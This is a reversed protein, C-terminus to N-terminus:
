VARLLLGPPGTADAVGEGFRRRFPVLGDIRVPSGAGRATAGVLLTELRDTIM